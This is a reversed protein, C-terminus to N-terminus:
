VGANRFPGTTAAFRRRTLRGGVIFVAVSVVIVVIWFTPTPGGAFTQVAPVRTATEAVAAALLGMYSYAMFYYHQDLWKDAPKRRWAPILGAILTALSAVAAVHFPGFTRTLRYIFLATVNLTLMSIAYLWGVRRHTATGKPWLVIWTGALLAVLSSALHIRGIPNM